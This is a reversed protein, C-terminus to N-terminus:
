GINLVKAVPSICTASLQHQAATNQYLNGQQHLHAAQVSAHQASAHWVTVQYAVQTFRGQWAHAKITLQGSVRETCHAFQRVFLSRRARSLNLGDM